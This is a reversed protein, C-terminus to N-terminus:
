GPQIRGDRGLVLDGRHHRYAHRVGSIAGRLRGRLKGKEAPIPKGDADVFGDFNTLTWALSLDIMQGDPEITPTVELTVGTNKKDFNTPTAVPKDFLGKDRQFATPYIFERIIEITAKQDSKTTVRPASLLDVGKSENLQRVLLRFDAPLVHASRFIPASADSERALPPAFLQHFIGALPLSPPVSNELQLASSKSIEVFKSEIEM